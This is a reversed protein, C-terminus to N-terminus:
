LPLPGVPTVPGRPFRGSRRRRRLTGTWVNFQFLLRPVEGPSGPDHRAVLPPDSQVLTKSRPGAKKRKKPPSTDQSRGLVESVGEGAGSALAESVAPVGAGKKKCSSPPAEEQQVVGPPPCAASGARHGAPLGRTSCLPCNVQGRCVRAVHGTQDCRYCATSRDVADASCRVRTHGAALCRFCRLPRPRLLEVKSRAWGIQVRGKAALLLSVQRPV